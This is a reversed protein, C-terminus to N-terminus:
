GESRPAVLGHGSEILEKFRQVFRALPAGDVVDHDVSVTLSLVESPEIRGEVVWPKEGIGGVTVQLTYNTIPIGWGAGKGFMGVATVGVTGTYKKKLHPYRRLLKWFLRMAFNPLSGSLRMRTYAGAEEVQATRIEQHIEWFTKTNAARIVYPTGIRHGDVLREVPTSIDVEDFIVLRNRGLRYANLTKNENVAQALCGIIFGTFSLTEGTQAKHEQILRRPLSVDVEILGHISHQSQAVSLYDVIAQRSKPYPVVQYGVPKM